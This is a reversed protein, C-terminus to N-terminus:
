NDELDTSGKYSFMNWNNSKAQTHPLDADMRELHWLSMSDLYRELKGQPSKLYGQYARRRSQLQEKSM